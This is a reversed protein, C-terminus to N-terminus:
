CVEFFKKVKKLFNLLLNIIFIKFDYLYTKLRYLVFYMNLKSCINHTFTLEISM